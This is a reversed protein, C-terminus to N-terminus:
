TGGKLFLTFDNAGDRFHPPASAMHSRHLMHLTDDLISLASIRWGEASIM